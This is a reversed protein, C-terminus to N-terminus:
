SSKMISRSALSIIYKTADTWGDTHTDTQTESHLLWCLLTMVLRLHEDTHRYDTPMHPYIRPPPRDAKLKVMFHVEQAALTPFGSVEVSIGGRARCYSTEKILHHPSLRPKYLVCTNTQTM